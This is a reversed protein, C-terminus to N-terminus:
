GFNTRTQKKKSNDDKLQKTTTSNIKTKILLSIIIKNRYGVVASVNQEFLKAQMQFEIIM